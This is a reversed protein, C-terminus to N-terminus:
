PTDAALLQETNVYDSRANTQGQLAAVAYDEPLSEQTINVTSADLLQIQVPEGSVEISFTYNSILLEDIYVTM